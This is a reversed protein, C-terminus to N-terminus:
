ELANVTENILEETYQDELYDLFADDESYKNDMNKIGPNNTMTNKVLLTSPNTKKESDTDIRAIQKFFLGLGAFMAAMYLFPRIRDLLSVKEPKPIFKEEPIQKMIQETLGEFYGEPVTFPNEKLKSKLNDDEIKM